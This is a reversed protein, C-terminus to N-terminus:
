LASMWLLAIIGVKAWHLCDWKCHQSLRVQLGQFPKFHYLKPSFQGDLAKRINTQSMKRQKQGKLKGEEYMGFVQQMKHYTQAPLLAMQIAQLVYSESQLSSLINCCPILQVQCISNLVGVVQPTICLRMCAKKWDRYKQTNYRPVPPDYKGDDCKGEEAFHQFSLRRCAAAIEPFTTTRQIQNYQNHQQAITLIAETSLGQGYVACRRATIKRSGEVKNIRCIATFRQVGGVVQYTYTHSARQKFDDKTASCVVLLPATLDEHDQAEEKLMKMLLEVYWEKVERVRLHDPPDQLNDMSVDFTGLIHVISKKTLATFVNVTPLKFSSCLLMYYFLSMFTSFFSLIGFCESETYLSVLTCLFM